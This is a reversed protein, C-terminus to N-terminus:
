KMQFQKLKGDATAEASISKRTADASIIIRINKNFPLNRMVIFGDVSGGEVDKLKAMLEQNLAPIAEAKFDNLSFLNDELKGDGSLQVPVTEVTGNRYKYEDVNEPNKPDQAQALVFDNFFQVKLFKPNDTGIQKKLATLADQINKESEFSKGSSSVATSGIKQSSAILKEFQNMNKCAPLFAISTGLVLISSAILKLNTFKM